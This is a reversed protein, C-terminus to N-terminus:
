YGDDSQGDAVVVELLHPPYTQSLVAGLSREIFDAENRIPMVVSVLPLDNAKATKKSNM